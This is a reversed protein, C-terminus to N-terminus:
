HAPQPLLREPRACVAGESFGEAGFGLAHNMRARWNEWAIAGALEVIGAEGLEAKLAAFLEDPMHVPTRTMAATFDLALRERPSFAPSTAHQALERLQAEHIGQARSLASAIDLCFECGVLSATKLECLMRLRADVAHGREAVLEYAGIAALLPTSHAYADLPAPVRGYRRQAFWRAFRALLGRRSAPLPAIRVLHPSAIVNAM